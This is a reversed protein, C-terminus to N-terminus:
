CMMDYVPEVTAFLFLISSLDRRPSFAASPRLCCPSLGAMYLHWQSDSGLVANGGWSSHTPDLYGLVAPDVPQFNLYSCDSGSAWPDCRCVKTGTDCVGALSCDWDSACGQFPTGCQGDCSKNTYNGPGEICVGREGGQVDCIYSGTHPPAPPNPPAPPPGPTPPACATSNACGSTYGPFSRSGAASTKLYCTGGPMRTWHTCPPHTQCLTCCEKFYGTSPDPHSHASGTLSESDVHLTHWM